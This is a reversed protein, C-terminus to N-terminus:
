YFRWGRSRKLSQKKEGGGGGRMKGRKFRKEKLEQTRRRGGCFLVGSDSEGEEASFVCSGKGGIEGGLPKRKEKRGFPNDGRGISVRKGGLRPSSFGGGGSENVGKSRIYPPLSWDPVKEQNYLFGGRRV